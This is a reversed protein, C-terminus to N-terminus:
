RGQTFSIKDSLYRNWFWEVDVGLGYSYIPASFDYSVEESFLAYRYGLGASLYLWPIPKFSAGFSIELPVFRFERNMRIDGAQNREVRDGFGYGLQLPVALKWRGKNYVVYDCTLSMYTFDNVQYRMEQRSTFPAYLYERSINNRLLYLGALLRVKGGFSLGLRIGDILAPQDRVFSNRGDFSAYLRPKMALYTRFTDALNYQAQSRQVTFFLFLISLIIVRVAQTLGARFGEKIIIGSVKL